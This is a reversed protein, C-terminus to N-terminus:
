YPTSDNASQRPKRRNRCRTKRQGINSGFVGRTLPKNLSDPWSRSWLPISMITEEWWERFNRGEYFLRRVEQKQRDAEKADVSVSWLKFDDSAARIALHEGLYQIDMTGSFAVTYPYGGVYLSITMIRAEEM